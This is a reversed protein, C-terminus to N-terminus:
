YLSLFVLASAHQMLMVVEDWPVHGRAEVGDPVDSFDGGGTLVLRLAPRERRLLAFAEFLRAHHQPPWSRAPSLVFPERAATAPTLRAHDPGPPCGRVRG